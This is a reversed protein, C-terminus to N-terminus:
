FSIFGGSTEVPAATMIYDRPATYGSQAILEYNVSLAREPTNSDQSLHGLIFRTTGKGILRSCLSACDNNSLHGRSSRIRAKLYDPYRCSSLMDPDYNSEILVAECGTLNEEVTDSVFGLDTCVACIKGDPLTIRYGCSEATDHSTPFCKVTFGDLEVYEKIDESYSFIMGESLLIDLTYSQAFVPVKCKKTLMKLGCIHDHHEHTIFVGKVATNIDIGNLDLANKIRTFSAGCDILIGETKSGIYTCNGKSSSFLPYIRAM